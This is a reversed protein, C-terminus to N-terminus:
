ISSNTPKNLELKYTWKNALSNLHKKICRNFIFLYIKDILVTLLIVVITILFGELIKNQLSLHNTAVQWFYKRFLVNETVLYSAFVSSAIWNIWESNYHPISQVVVIFITASLVISPFGANINLIIEIFYSLVAMIILMINNLQINYKRYYGILIYESIMVGVNLEGGFPTVPQGIITTISSFIIVIILVAILQQRVLRKIVHNLFPVIVMLFFFSTVFWYNNGIIPFVSKVLSKKNMVSFGFLLNLLLILWSYFVVRCWLFLLRRLLKTETKREETLFYASIMVFIGVGTQGLPLNFNSYKYNEGGM